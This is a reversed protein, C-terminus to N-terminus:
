EQAEQTVLRRNKQFVRRDIPELFNVVIDTMEEASREHGETLWSRLVGVIGFALFNFQYNYLMLDTEDVKSVDAGFVDTHTKIAELCGVRLVEAIEEFFTGDVNPGLCVALVADNSEFYRLVDLILDRQEDLAIEKSHAEVLEKFVECVDAKVQDYMDYVDRYHVYFTGRNVDALATLETVTIANLPKERLLEMLATTLANRTRRSRRDNKKLSEHRQWKSALIDDAM